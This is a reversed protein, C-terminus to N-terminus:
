KKTVDKKFRLIWEALKDKNDACKDYVIAADVGWKYFDAPLINRGLEKSTHLVPLETCTALLSEDPFVYETKTKNDVIVEQMGKTTSCATLNLLIFAILIKRM